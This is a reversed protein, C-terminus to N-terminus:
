FDHQAPFARATSLRRDLTRRAGHEAPTRPAWRRRPRRPSGRDGESRRATREGAVVRRVGRPTGGCEPAIPFRGRRVGSLGGSLGRLGKSRGVARAATMSRRSRGPSAAPTKQSAIPQRVGRAPRRAFFLAESRGSCCHCGVRVTLRISAPGDPPGPLTERRYNPVSLGSDDSPERAARVVSMGPLSPLRSRVAEERHDPPRLTSRRAM